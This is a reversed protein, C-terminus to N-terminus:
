GYKEEGLLCFQLFVDGTVADESDTLIQGFQYPNNAIMLRLGREISTRSLKHIKGTHVDKVRVYGGLGLPWSYLPYCLWDNELKASVKPKHKSVVEAWYGIDGEFATCLLGAIRADTLAITTKFM